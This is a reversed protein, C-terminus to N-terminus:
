TMIALNPYVTRFAAGKYRRLLYELAYARGRDRLLFAARVSADGHERVVCRVFAPSITHSQIFARIAGTEDDSLERGQKAFGGLVDNFGAMMEVGQRPDFHLGIGTTCNAIHDPYQMDPWPNKLGRKAMIREVEERPRAEFMLRFRRQEDAVMRPGDPYSVLERGGHYDLFERHYRETSAVAQDLLDKRYRYVISSSRTIMSKRLDEVAAAPLTSYPQQVGSWYWHSGWPVLSGFVLSDPRFPHPEPGMIVRYSQDNILNTVELVDGKEADIRYLAAHREHWGRLVARREETLPLVAALVDLVGLGSWQTCQQCIFDDISAITGIGAYVEADPEQDALYQRCDTRFLYSRTGLWVLKKKIDWGHEDPTELFRKVGSDRPVAAIREALVDAVDRLYKDGRGSRAEPRFHQGNM